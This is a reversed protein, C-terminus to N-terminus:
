TITKIKCTFQKMTSSPFHVWQGLLDKFRPDLEIHYKRLYGFLEDTGLVKAIRVLQLPCWVCWVRQWHGFHALTDNRTPLFVISRMLIFCLYVIQAGAKNRNPWLDFTGPWLQRTWSLFARESFDYQGVYLRSEVHGSQLWVDSVSASSVPWQQRVVVRSRKFSCVLLHRTHVFQVYRAFTVNCFSKSMCTYPDSRITLLSNPVKSTDLRWESM